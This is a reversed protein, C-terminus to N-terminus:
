TFGQRAASRATSACRVVEVYRSTIPHTPPSPPSLWQCGIPLPRSCLAAAFRSSSKEHGPRRDAAVLRSGGGALFSAPVTSASLNAADYPQRTGAQTTPAFALCVSLTTLAALLPQSGGSPCSSREGPRPHRRVSASGPCTAALFAAADSGACVCALRVSARGQCYGDPPSSSAHDSVDLFSSTRIIGVSRFFCNPPAPTTADPRLDPPVVGKGAPSGFRLRLRLASFCFGRGPGVSRSRHRRVSLVPVKNAGNGPLPCCFDGPQHHRRPAPVLAARRGAISLGGGSPHRAPPRALSAPLPLLGKINRM